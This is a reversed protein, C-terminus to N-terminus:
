KLRGQSKYYEEFLANVIETMAGRRSTKIDKDILKAIENRIYFAKTKHTERIGKKAKAIPINAVNVGVNDPTNDSDETSPNVNTNDNPDNNPNPDQNQNDEPNQKPGMLHDYVTTDQQKPGMMGKYKDVNKNSM